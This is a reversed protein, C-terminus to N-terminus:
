QGITFLMIARGQKLTEEGQKVVERAEVVGAQQQKLDL